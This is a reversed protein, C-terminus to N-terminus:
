WGSTSTTTTGTPSTSAPISNLSEDLGLTSQGRQLETRDVVGIAAPVRSVTEPSRAVTVTIEPLAVLATDKRTTDRSVPVQGLAQTAFGAIFVLSSLNRM